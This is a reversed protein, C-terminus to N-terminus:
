VQPPVFGRKVWRVLFFVLYVFGWGFPVPIFAVLAASLRADRTALALSDEAEKNCQRFAAEYAVENQRYDPLSGDCRVHTDAILDSARNIELDYTHVGAGLVWAVSAIIGIRKWGSLKIM